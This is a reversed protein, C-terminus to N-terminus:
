ATRRWTTASPISATAPHPSSRCPSAATSASPQAMRSPAYARPRCVGKLLAVGNAPVAVEAGLSDHLLKLNGSHDAHHHTVAALGIEAREIAALYGRLMWRFKDIAEGSDISLVQGAGVLYVNTSGPHMPNEEPVQVARVHDSVQM